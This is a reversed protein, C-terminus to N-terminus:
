KNKTLSPPMEILYDFEYSCDNGRAGDACDNAEQETSFEGLVEIQDANTKSIKLVSFPM